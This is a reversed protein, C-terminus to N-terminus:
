ISCLIVYMAKCGLHLIQDVHEDCLKECKAWDIFFHATVEAVACGMSQTILWVAGGEIMAHAVMWYGWQSNRRPNKSAVMQEPQIAYDTLAHAM